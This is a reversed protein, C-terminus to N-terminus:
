AALPVSPPEDDDLLTRALRETEDKLLRLQEETRQQQIEALRAQQELWSQSMASNLEQEVLRAERQALTTERQTLEAAKHILEGHRTDLNTLELHLTERDRRIKRLLANNQQLWRRRLRNIKRVATPDNASDLVQRRYQELALTRETLQRREVELQGARALWEERLRALDGHLKAVDAQETQLQRLLEQRQQEWDGRWQTLEAVQEHAGVERQRVENLLQQREVELAQERTQLRNRWVRVEDRLSDVEARRRRYIDEGGTITQERQGLEQERQLLTQALSELEVAARDRQEQWAAQVRVLQQWQEVLHLRQDALEGTLRELNAHQPAVTSTEPAAVPPRPPEAAPSLQLRREGLLAELRALEQQQEQLKQRQNTIRNNLGHLEQGLRHQEQEWATREQVIVARAQGMKHEALAVEHLRLRLAARERGRRRRWRQRSARLEAQGDHLRRTELERETNFRLVQAALADERSHLEEQRRRLAATEQEAQQREASRRQQWRQRLRQFVRRLRERQGRLQERERTLEARLQEDEAKERLWISRETQQQTSWQELQRRKEELHAALQEEQYQLDDRRQQLRAEEEDLAIQQAAVAAVQVRLGSHEDGSDWDEEPPPLHLQFRFPGIEIVDGHQLAASGVCRGNVFTGGSSNLDRLHLGSPGQVILCHLPEVDPVVLKLDCGAARGIVTAPAQLPRRTGSPRGNLLILEGLSVQKAPLSIADM